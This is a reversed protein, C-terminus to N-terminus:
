NESTGGYHKGYHNYWNVEGGVTCSPEKKEVDEASKGRTKKITIMKSPSIHYRVTTKIQM